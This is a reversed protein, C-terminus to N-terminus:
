ATQRSQNCLPHQPRSAERGQGKDINRGIDSRRPDLPHDAKHLFMDLCAKGRRLLGCLDDGGIGGVPGLAPGAIPEFMIQTESIVAAIAPM